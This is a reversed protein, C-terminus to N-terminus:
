GHHYPLGKLITAARYLQELLVVRALEHPLTLTGLSLLGHAAARVEDSLGFAGGVVFCPRSNADETWRSLREALRRSSAQEGREDLGILRDRPGVRSLIARGESLVREGPPLKGPADKLEVIEVTFFGQLRRLYHQAADRFFPEKPKGIWICRLVAM